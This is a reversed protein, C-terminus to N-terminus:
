HASVQHKQTKHWNSMKLEKERSWEKEKWQRPRNVPREGNDLEECMNDYKECANKIVEHRITEPYGTRRLKHAWQELVSRSREWEMGRFNNRLRKLGEEVLVSMNMKRSHASKFPILMKAACPKEYFEHILQGEETSVKLDLVLVKNDEYKSPFDVTFQLCKYFSSAVDKLINMTREDDPVLEEAVLEEMFVIIGDEYIVGALLGPDIAVLADLTDNEYCESLENKVKLKTPLKLYKKNHRIMVMKGLREPLKNGIAGGKGQKWISNDFSYYPNKMVLRIAYKMLCGVMKMNQRRGPKTAPPLWSEDEMRTAAGGMIAKCTLGPRTDMKFRRTHVLHTLGEEKLQKVSLSFALFLAIDNTDVNIDLDSGEVEKRVELM